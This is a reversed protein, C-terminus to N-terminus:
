QSGADADSPRSLVVLGAAVLALGLSLPLLSQMHWNCGDYWEVSAAVLDVSVLRAGTPHVGFREYVASDIGPCARETAGGLRLSLAAVAVGAAALAYGLRSRRRM